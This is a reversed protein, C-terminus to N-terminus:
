NESILNQLTLKHSCTQFIDEKKIMIFDGGLLFTAEMTQVQM